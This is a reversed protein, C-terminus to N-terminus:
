NEIAEKMITKLSHKCEPEEALHQNIVALIKSTKDYVEATSSKIVSKQIQGNDM